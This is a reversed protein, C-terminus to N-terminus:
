DVPPRDKTVMAAIALVIIAGITSMIWGTPRDFDIEGEFLSAIFGGIFSGVIGLIITTLCGLNQRGPMLLRAIAGVIAGFITWSIIAGLVEMVTGEGYSIPRSTAFQGSRNTYDYAFRPPCSLSAAPYKQPLPM